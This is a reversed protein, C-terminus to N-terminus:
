GLQNSRAIIYRPHLFVVLTTESSLSLVRKLPNQLVEFTLLVAVSGCIEHVIQGVESKAFSSFVLHAFDLNVASHFAGKVM